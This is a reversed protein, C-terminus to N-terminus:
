TFNRVALYSKSDPLNFPPLWLIVYLILFVSPKSLRKVKINKRTKPFQKKKKRGQKKTTTYITTYSLTIKLRVEKKGIELLIM